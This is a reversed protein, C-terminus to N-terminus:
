AHIIPEGCTAGTVPVVPIEEFHEDKRIGRCIESLVTLGQMVLDSSAMQFGSWRMTLRNILHQEMLSIVSLDDPIVVGLQQLLKEVHGNLISVMLGTYCRDQLFSRLREMSDADPTGGTEMRPVLYCNEEPVPLGAEEMAAQYGKFYPLHFFGDLAAWGIFGIKRHGQRILEQTGRYAADAYDLSVVNLGKKRISRGILIIPVPSDEFIREEMRSLYETWELNPRFLVVGNCTEPPQELAARLGETSETYRYLIDADNTKGGTELWQYHLPSLSWYAASYREIAIFHLKRRKPPPLIFNGMGKATALYKREILETLAGRLTCRSVGLLNTLQRESPLRTGTNLVGSEISQELAGSIQKYLPIRSKADLRDTLTRFFETEGEPLSPSPPAKRTKKSPKLADASSM